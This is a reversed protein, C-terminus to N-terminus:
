RHPSVRRTSHPPFGAHPWAPRADFTSIPAADHHEAPGRRALPADPGVPIELLRRGGAITATIASRATPREVGVPAVGFSGHREAAIQDDRFLYHVTLACRAM